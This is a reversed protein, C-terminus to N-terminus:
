RIERIDSNIITIVEEIENLITARIHRIINKKFDNLDEFDYDSIQSEIDFEIRLKAM